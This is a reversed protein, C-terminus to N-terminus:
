SMSAGRTGKKTYKYTYKQRGKADREGPHEMEGWLQLCAAGRRDIEKLLLDARRQWEEERKGREDEMETQRKQLKVVAAELKENEAALADSARHQVNLADAYHSLADKLADNDRHLRNIAKDRHQVTTILVDKPLRDAPQTQHSSNDSNHSVNLNEQLDDVELKMQHLDSDLGQCQQKAQKLSTQLKDITTNKFELELELEHITEDKQVLQAQLQAIQARLNEEQTNSHPVSTMELTNKAFMSAPPPTRKTRPTSSGDQVSPRQYKITSTAPLPISPSTSHTKATRTPSVTRSRPSCHFLERADIIKSPTYTPPSRGVGKVNGKSSKKAVPIFSPSKRAGPPENRNIYDLLNETFDSPGSISSITINSKSPSSIQISPQRDGNIYDLLNETFDSPGAISTM